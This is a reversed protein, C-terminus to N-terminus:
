PADRKTKRKFCRTRCAPISRSMMCTCAASSLCGRSVKLSPWPWNACARCIKIAARCWCRWGDFRAPKIEFSRAQTIYRAFTRFPQRNLLALVHLLHLVADFLLLSVGEVNNQEVANLVKAFSEQLEYRQCAAQHIFEEPTHEAAKVQQVLAEILPANYLPLLVNSASLHWHPAIASHEALYQEPTFYAAEILMGDVVRQLCRDQGEPPMEKLFVELELDSYACDEGRAYSACAAIALLNEGFKQQWLPILREIIAAREAHTHPQIGRISM